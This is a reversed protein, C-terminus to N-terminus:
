YNANLEIGECNKLYDQLCDYLSSLFKIYEVSDKIYVTYRYCEYNDAIFITKTSQLKYKTGGRKVWAFLDKKIWDFFMRGNLTYYVRLYGNCKDLGIIGVSVGNIKKIEM